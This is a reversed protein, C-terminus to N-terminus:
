AAPSPVEGDSSQGSISTSLRLTPRAKAKGAPKFELKGSGRIVRLPASDRVQKGSAERIAKVLDNYLGEEFNKLAVDDNSYLRDEGSAIKEVVRSMAGLVLEQEAGSLKSVSDLLGTAAEGGIGDLLTNLQLQVSMLSSSFTGPFRRIM